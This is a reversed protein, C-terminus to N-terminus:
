GAVMPWSGSIAQAYGTALVGLLFVVTLAMVM